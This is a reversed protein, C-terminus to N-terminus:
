MKASPAITGGKDTCDKASPEMTFSEGKCANHGKCDNKTSKCNGKGKCSNTGVCKVDTTGAKDAKEGAHAIGGAFMAGLVCAIAAGRASRFNM